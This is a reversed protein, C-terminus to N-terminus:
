IWFLNKPKWKILDFIIKSGDINIYDLKVFGYRPSFYSTLYTVGLESKASAKVIYCKLTGMKTSLFTERVIEYTMVNTINGKWEKWRKDKWQEGIELKWTWQLGTKLPKKIHPFPNIELIKFFDDRPPHAWVEEENEIITSESSYLQLPYKYRFSNDQSSRTLKEKISSSTKVVTIVVNEIEKLDATTISSENDKKNPSPIFQYAFTWESGLKYIIHIDTSVLSFPSSQAKVINGNFSFLLLFLQFICKRGFVTNHTIWYM